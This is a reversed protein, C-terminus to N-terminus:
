PPSSASGGGKSFSLFATGAKSALAKGVVFLMMPSDCSSMVDSGGCFGVEHADREKFRTFQGWTISRWFFVAGDDQVAVVTCV